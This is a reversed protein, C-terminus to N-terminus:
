WMLIWDWIDRRIAMCYRLRHVASLLIIVQTTGFNQWRFGSLGALPALMFSAVSTHKWARTLVSLRDM